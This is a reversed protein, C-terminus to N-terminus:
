ELDKKYFTGLINSNYSLPDKLCEYKFQWYVEYYTALKKSPCAILIRREFNEKGYKKVEEKLVINSGYYTKWDSEKTVIKYKPKRGKGSYQEKIETQTLKKKSNNELIKQGIYYQGTKKNTIIYVFAVTGPPFQSVDTIEKGEFLWNNM